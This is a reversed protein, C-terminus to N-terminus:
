GKAPPAMKRQQYEQQQSNQQHNNRNFTNHQQHHQSRGGDGRGGGGGNYGGGGGMNNGAGGPTYGLNSTKDTTLTIDGDFEFAPISVKLHYNGTKDADKTSADYVAQMDEATSFDIFGFAYKYEKRLSVPKIGVFEVGETIGMIHKMLDQQGLKFDVFRGPKTLNNFYIRHPWEKRPAVNGGTPPQQPQTQQQPQQQQKQDNQVAPTDVVMTPPPPSVSKRVKQSEVVVPAPPAANPKPANVVQEAAPPASNKQAAAPATPVPQKQGQSGGTSHQQQQQGGKQHQQQPQQAMAMKNQGGSVVKNWSKPKPPGQQQQQQQKTHGPMDEKVSNNTATKTDEAPKEAVPHTAQPPKQPSKPQPTQEATYNSMKELGPPPAQSVAVQVPENQLAPQLPYPAINVPPQVHNSTPVNSGGNLQPTEVTAMPKAMPPATPETGTGNEMPASPQQQQVPPTPVITPPSINNRMKDVGNDPFLMDLWQFINSKVYLTNPPAGPICCLVFTQCFRRQTTTLAQGSGKFTMVGCVQLVKSDEIAPVTKISFVRSKTCDNFGMKLIARQINERGTVGTEEAPGDGIVLSSDDGYFNAIDEPHDTLQTYYANCFLYAMSKLEANNSKTGNVEAATNEASKNVAVVAPAVAAIDNEKEVM